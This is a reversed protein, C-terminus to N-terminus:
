HVSDSGASKERPCLRSRANAAARFPTAWATKVVDFLTLQFVWFAATEREVPINLVALFPSAVAAGVLWIVAGTVLFLGLTTNFVVRLEHQDGLGIQYAMHRQASFTLSTSILSLLLGGAGLATLLGWDVDGLSGIIFRTAVLSLGLTFAVRGFTVITNVILRTSQRM